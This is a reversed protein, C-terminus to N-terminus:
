SENKDEIRHRLYCFYGLLRMLACLGTSRDEKAIMPFYSGNQTSNLFVLSLLYVCAFPQLSVVEGAPKEVQIIKKGHVCLVTCAPVTTLKCTLSFGDKVACVYASTTNDSLCGFFHSTSWNFSFFNRM